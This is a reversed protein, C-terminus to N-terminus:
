RSTALLTAGAGAFTFGFLRSLWKGSKSNQTTKVFVKAVMSYTMLCCFSFGTFTAVLLTFQPILASETTIFQPFLATTFLIAKPNTLAVLIGQIFLSASNRQIGAKHSCVSLNIGERWLKLGLYFLYLAGIIKLMTFAISSYLILAGLGLVSGTSMIFLGSINGLITFVARRPGLQLSHLIVLLIAPGPTVTAVFAIASFALWANWEM